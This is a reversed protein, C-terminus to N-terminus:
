LTLQWQKMKSTLNASLISFQGRIQMLSTAKDPAGNLALELISGAELHFKAHLDVVEDYFASNKDKPDIREHLWKGFSCNNDQKVREPTSECVGTKIAERLTQKWRGHAAIANSIDDYTSM